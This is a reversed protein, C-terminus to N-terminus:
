GKNAAYWTVFDATLDRGGDSRLAGLGSSRAMKMATCGREAGFAAARAAVREQVPGMIARMQEGYAVRLQRQKADLEMRRHLRESLPDAAEASLRVRPGGFQDIATDSALQVGPVRPAELGAIEQQLFAIQEVQPRLTEDIKRVAANLEEIGGPGM